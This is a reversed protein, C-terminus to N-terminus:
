LDFLGFLHVLFCAVVDFAKVTVKFVVHLFDLGNLHFVNFKMLLLFFEFLVHELDLVRRIM